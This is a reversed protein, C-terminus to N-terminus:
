PVSNRYAKVLPVVFEAYRLGYYDNENKPTDVGSFNFGVSQAAAEVEQAIFGTTVQSYKEGTLCKLGPNQKQLENQRATVGTFAHIKERNLQYSVPRLQKIFALGPIDEKVNEKFRSDSINTWNVYGGISNVFINGIRVMDTGTATADIGICTTNDLNTANPGTNYGVATNYSGTTNTALSNSGLSTNRFGSNTTQSAHYGVATNDDTTVNRLAEAGSATNRSGYQNAFLASVGTATNYSGNYNTTLASFGTGCNNFGQYNSALAQAGYATNQFGNYNNSLSRYGGATNNDGNINSNMSYTGFSSNKSGTTNSTLASYGVATNEIGDSESSPQNSYLAMAGVAVNDSTWIYGPDYSQTFLASSGVATNRSATTNNMLARNGSATNSCGNINASLAQDGFGTNDAGSVSAQGVGRGLYLNGMQGTIELRNNFLAMTETGALFFRIIDENPNKEVEVRTNGDADRLLSASGAVLMDWASVNYCYFAGVTTNYVLLGNAPGAIAQMEAATMRPVLIGKNTSKVDLMASAHPLSGDSTVSVQASIAAGYSIFLILLIKKMMFKM